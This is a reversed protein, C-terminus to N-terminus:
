RIKTRGMSTKKFRGSAKIASSTFRTNYSSLVNMYSSLSVKHREVSSLFELDTEDSIGGHVVLVQNDIITAIPLLSFVDQLLQLIQRGHIQLFDLDFYRCKFFSSYCGGFTAVDQIRSFINGQVEADSRKYLWIQLLM